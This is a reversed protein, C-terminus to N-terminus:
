FMLCFHSRNQEYSLTEYKLDAADGHCSLKFFVGEGWSSRSIFLHDSWGLEWDRIIGRLTGELIWIKCRNTFM